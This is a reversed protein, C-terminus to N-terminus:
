SGETALHAESGRAVLLDRKPDIAIWAIAGLMAIVAATVFSRNWGFHAAILPTLATTCAGGVQGGINMVASVVSVYEGAIDATVAWFGSQAIYLVGAGCALIVAAMPAGRTRSGLVLLIATLALSLAPLLCRGLRLGHHRAIWDSVVGGSLSGITMAIFPLTSYFASAKLNLGREQALYIYFWAFFIWAVYGYAFYSATVALIAKNTFIRTWPVKQNGSRLSHDATVPAGPVRRGQEILAAEATGVLPHEEPTNRAAVYWVLGVVVGILASFWFSARWGYHLMIATVLPPTLGSGTGVGGFIIGNAKGREQVPFWREVFQSTAPYMAAEGAGLAFRVFVLTLLAGRMGPPVLATLVSFFSWWLCGLSLIVRPGFRKALLGAPIQFTAYGILFASFVWGLHTNDIAFERGIRVGAISINTRDLYAVASLVFLWSVLLYRIPLTTRKPTLGM